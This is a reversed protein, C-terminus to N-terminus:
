KDCKGAALMTLETLQGRIAFEGYDITLKRSVGNEFFLFALEYSPVADAKGAKADFYSLSVPWAKLTDLAEANQATPLTKNHGAALPEGIFATTSFLKAGKESGDYLDATFIRTGKLALELMARSHQVPFMAPADFNLTRKDPKRIDVAIGREGGARRKAQGAATEALQENRYQSSDFKFNAAAADETFRSRLDTISPRGDSNLTRTVFRMTQEYGECANGKLEYVMRGSLQTIGASTSTRALTIDYVARHPALQSSTAPAASVASAAGAVALLAACGFFARRRAGAQRDAITSAVDTVAFSM